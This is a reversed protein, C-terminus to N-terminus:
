SSSSPPTATAPIERGPWAYPACSTRRQSEGLRSSRSIEGDPTTGSLQPDVASDVIVLATVSMGGDVQCTLRPPRPRPTGEEGAIDGSRSRPRNWLKEASLGVRVGVGRCVVKGGLWSSRMTPSTWSSAISCRTLEAPDPLQLALPLLSVEGDARSTSDVSPLALTPRNGSSSSSSSTSASCEQPELTRLWHQRTLPPPFRQSVSVFPNRSSSAPPDFSPYLLASCLLASCLLASCLLASCLLASCLLASCLLASCLLASCLLASQHPPALAGVSSTCAAMSTFTTTTM